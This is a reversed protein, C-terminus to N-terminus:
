KAQIEIRGSRLRGLPRAMREFDKFNSTFGRRQRLPHVDAGFFQGAV